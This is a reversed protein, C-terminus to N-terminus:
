QELSKAQFPSDINLREMYNKNRLKKENIFIMFKNSMGERLLFSEHILRYNGQNIYRKFQIQCSNNKIKYYYESNEGSNAIKLNFEGKIKTLKKEFFNIWKSALQM